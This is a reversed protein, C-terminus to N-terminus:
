RRGVRASVSHRNNAPAGDLTRSRALVTFTMRTGKRAKVRGTFKFTAKRGPALTRPRCRFGRGRVKCGNAKVSSLGNPLRGLVTAGPAPAPGRNTLVVAYTAKRGARLKPRSVSVRLDASPAFHATLEHAGSMTVGAVRGNGYPHGDLTWGAFARGQDPTATVVVRSGPLFPGGVAAHARGGPAANVNLPHTQESQRPPRYAAVTGSTLALMRVSDTPEPGDAVGLPEGRYTRNPTSYFPIGRCYGCAAGYAMISHWAGRASVSGHNFAYGPVPTRGGTSAWDHELGMNHGLEHALVLGGPPSAVVSMGYSAFQPEPPIPMYARGRFHGDWEKGLDLTILDACYQERLPHAEDMVGDSPNQLAYLAPQPDKGAFRTEYMHVIRYRMGAGSNHLARNTVAVEYELHAQIGHLGGYHALALSTYAVLVDVIPPGGARAGKLRYAPKQGQGPIPEVDDGTAGAYGNQEEILVRGPGLPSVVFLRGDQLRVDGAVFAGRGCGSEVVFTVFSEGQGPVEAWWEFGFAAPQVLVGAARVNADDFLNLRVKGQHAAREDKCMRQVAQDNIRASRVRVDLSNAGALGGPDPLFLDIFEPAPAAGAPSSFGFLLLLVVCIRGFM